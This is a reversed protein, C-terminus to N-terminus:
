GPFTLARGNYPVVLALTQLAPLDQPFNGSSPPLANIKLEKWRYSEKLAEHYVHKFKHHDDIFSLHLPTRGSRRMCFQTFRFAEDSELSRRYFDTNIHSWLRSCTHTVARWKSCVQGLILGPHTKRGYDEMSMKFYIHFISLLIEVPLRRITPKVMGSLQTVSQFLSDRRAQLEELLTMIKRREDEYAELEKQAQCLHGQIIPREENSAIHNGPHLSLFEHIKSRTPSIQPPFAFTRSEWGSKFSEM